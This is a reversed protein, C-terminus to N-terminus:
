TRHAKFRRITHVETNHLDKIHVQIDINYLQIAKYQMRIADKIAYMHEIHNKTFLNHTFSNNNM